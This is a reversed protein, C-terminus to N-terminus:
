GKRNQEMKVDSIEGTNKEAETLKRSKEAGIGSSKGRTTRAESRQQKAVVENMCSENM